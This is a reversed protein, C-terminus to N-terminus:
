SLTCYMIVFNFVISTIILLQVIIYHIILALLSNNCKVGGAKGRHGRGKNVKSLVVKVSRNIMRPLHPKPVFSSSEVYNFFEHRLVQLLMIVDDVCSVKGRPSDM